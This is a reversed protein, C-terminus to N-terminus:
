FIVKDKDKYFPGQKIEIIEVDKLVEFGHGGNFLLILDGKKLIKDQKINKKKEDYFIVKIIGKKVLLCESLYSINRTKKLHIHSKIKHNKKHKLFGLQILHKNDTLFNVGNKKFQEEKKILLAFVESKYNILEVHKM